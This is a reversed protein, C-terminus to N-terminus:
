DSWGRVELALQQAISLCDDKSCLYGKGENKRKSPQRNAARRASRSKAGAFARRERESAYMPLGHETEVYRVCELECGEAWTLQVRQKKTRPLASGSREPVLEMACSKRVTGLCWVTRARPCGAFAQTATDM